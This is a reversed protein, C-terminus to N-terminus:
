DLVEIATAAVEIASDGSPYAQRAADQVEAAEDSEMAHRLAALAEAHDALEGVDGLCMVAAVRISPVPDELVMTIEETHCLGRQGLRPLAAVAAARVRADRDFMLLCVKSSFMQGREGCAPIAAVAHCRVSASRDGLCKVIDEVFPEVEEGMKGLGACAAGRVAPHKSQLLEAMREVICPSVSRTGEALMGLAHCAAAVALPQSERMLDVLDQEYMAATTGLKGLAYACQVQVELDTSSLGQALKGTSRGAAKGMVSLSAAAACAPKRMAPSVKSHIGAIALPLTSKDEAVDSILKELKDIESAAMEGIGGLAVAAAARVGVDKSGCLQGLAQAHPAAREGLVALAKVAAIRVYADPDGILAAIKAVNREAAQPSHAFSGVAAARARPEKHHMVKAVEDGEAGLCGLGACAGAVVEADADLLKLALRPASSESRMAGLAVCADAVVGPHRDDLCAEVAEAHGLAREGLAALACAAARRVESDPSGLKGVVLGAWGAGLKGMEGLARMAAAQVEPDGDRLLEVCRQDASYRAAGEEGMRGLERCAQARRGGAPDRLARFTEELTDHRRGQNHKSTTAMRGAGPQSRASM